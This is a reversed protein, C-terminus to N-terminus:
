IDPGPSRIVIERSGYYNSLNIKNITVLNNPDIPVFQARLEYKLMGYKSHWYESTFFSPHLGM